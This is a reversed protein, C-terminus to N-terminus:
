REERKRRKLEHKAYHEFSHPVDKTLIRGLWLSDERDSLLHPDATSVIAVFIAWRRATGKEAEFESFLGGIAEEERQRYLAELAARRVTISSEGDASCKMAHTIEAYPLWGAVRCATKRERESGGLRMRIGLIVAKSEVRRLARGASDALSERESAVAAEILKDVASEPAVQVLLRCLEREMRPGNSIALEIAEEARGADFKALGRIADLQEHVVPSRESYAKELIKERVAANHSEGAIEYLPQLFVRDRLCQEAAADVAASRGKTTEHLARIVLHRYDMHVTESTKELWRRLGDVGDDRLAMLASLGHWCNEKTFALREALVAFETSEDGLDRLAICAHAAVPSECAVRALVDRIIPILENDHSLWAVLISRRVEQESSEPSEMMRVAGATLPKSMPGRFERFEALHPPVEVKECHLLIDVLVDDAGLAGLGTIAQTFEHLDEGSPKGGAVSTIPRRAIAELGDVTAQNGCAWAWNLGGHRVWFHESELERNILTTVGAGGFLILARRAPELIHDRMRDNGRLRSCALETIAAELPTGAKAQLQRLLEPRCTRGLFRLAFFPWIVGKTTIEEKHKQLQAEQTRVVLGFTTDDLDVPRKEFYEEILRSGRAESVALERLRARTLESNARLLLPLWENKFFSQEDDIAVIRDIAAGPDLVALAGMAAASVIEGSYSLHELVFDKKECDRFRAICQILSRPNSKGIKGMLVDRVEQWIRDAEPHDLGSLLFGLEFVPEAGADGLLIRDRLWEPRRAVGARLATFTAEHGRQFRRESAHGIADRRQQHLQWLRDLHRADPVEALVQVAVSQRDWSQSRLLSEIDSRVEVSERKALAVFADGILGIRYDGPSAGSISDLRQLLIPVARQGLTPLLKTYLTRGEGGFARHEEMRAVLRGLASQRPDKESLLWLVDMPVYGFRTFSDAGEEESEGTMRDFVQDVSLEGYGFKRSLSQAVAWNLLRDHAFEVEGHEGCLLWGAAELASVSKNNLGIESWHQRPLPYREGEFACDALAAVIGKDGADCRESIRNWFAQFIEYESQPADQFSAVSLDLFLGALVPKRLLRKLDEALDAWRHGHMRLLADLQDISFDGVRHLSIEERDTAELARALPLPATLVLRAGLSTWDQRVLGRAVDISQVDDVAVTYLPPRLQFADERLFNSIAQLRRDSTQGMAVQWIEDAAHRLIEEANGGGRVFVVREGDGVGEEVLRALQWSKGTGSDGSVVLVPKMKPWRPVDRVDKRRRYRLYRSRRRMGGELMRALDMVKRLRDPAVGAARLMADLSDRDLRTEGSGLREMLVGILRQRVGTEDGLHEVYPRLRAEVAEALEESRVCFKMEFRRLLHLVTEREEATPDGEEIGRTALVLHDLFERDSRCLTHTFRRRTEGDLGDPAESEDLRAVFSEFAGLRGARGDTVFRYHAHEPRSDPVSKLLDRLVATLNGLSWTGTSRTKYQEVLFVGSAYAQADGGDRPELVLCGDKVDEGDLTGTLRVDSLWDLHHLIQYLFGNIAAPGGSRTM